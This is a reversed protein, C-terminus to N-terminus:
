IFLNRRILNEKSFTNNKGKIMLPNEHKSQDDSLKKRVSTSIHYKSQYQKGKRPPPSFVPFEAGYRQNASHHNYLEDQISSKGHAMAPFSITSPDKHTKNPPTQDFSEDGYVSGNKLIMNQRHNADISPFLDQDASRPQPNSVISVPLPKKQQIKQRITNLSAVDNRFKSNQYRSQIM